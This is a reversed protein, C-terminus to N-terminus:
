NFWDMGRKVSGMQRVLPLFGVVEEFYNLCGNRKGQHGGGRSIGEKPDQNQYRELGQVHLPGSCTLMSAVYNMGIDECNFKSDVHQRVLTPIAEPSSYYDMLSIHVFALNTLVLAYWDSGKRCPHYSLKNTKGDRSYCRPLAGTVRYRGLQRWSQFAFELDSPSYWVDDDHSLIAQTQYAPDPLFRVNLSNLPSTRFRVLM